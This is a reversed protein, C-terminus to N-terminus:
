VRQTRLDKWQLLHNARRRVEDSSVERSQPPRDASFGGPRISLKQAGIMVHKKRPKSM